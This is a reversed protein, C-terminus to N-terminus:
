INYIHVEFEKNLRWIRFIGENIFHFIKKHLITIYLFSKQKAISSDSFKISLVCMTVDAIVHDMPHFIQHYYVSYNDMM